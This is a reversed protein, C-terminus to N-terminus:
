QQAFYLEAEDVGLQSEVYREWEVQEDTKYSYNVPEARCDNNPSSTTPSSSSSNRSSIPSALSTACAPEATAVPVAEVVASEHEDDSAITLDITGTSPGAMLNDLFVRRKVNVPPSEDNMRKPM